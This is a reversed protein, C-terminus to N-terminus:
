KNWEGSNSRGRGRGINGRGRGRYSGRGRGRWNQDNTSESSSFLLSTQQDQPIKGKLREEYAKLRGVIDEFPIKNLDLLQELSATMHFFKLPLSNLFKKVIRPQDIKHGLSAAKSVLESLKGSFADISESDEMTIRDFENMLTILRAEKVREAGVNRTKISEWIEKPTDDDGIQMVLTEPLSQYLLVTAMNIKDEDETGPEIAEWVKHVKFLAKMKKVWVNYNTTTLMPCVVTNPVDERRGQTTPAKVETLDKTDAM